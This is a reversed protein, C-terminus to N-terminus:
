FMGTLRGSNHESIFIDQDLDLNTERQDAMFTYENDDTEVLITGMCKTYCYLDVLNNRCDM